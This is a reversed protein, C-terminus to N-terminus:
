SPLFYILYTHKEKILNPLCFSQAYPIIKKTQNLIFFFVNGAFNKAVRIPASMFISTYNQEYNRRRTFVSRLHFKLLANKNFSATKELTLENTQDYDFALLLSCFVHYFEDFNTVAPFM